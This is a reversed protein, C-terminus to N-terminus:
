VGGNIVVRSCRTTILLSIDTAIAAHQQKAFYYLNRVLRDFVFLGLFELIEIDIGTMHNLSFPRIHHQYFLFGLFTHKNVNPHWSMHSFHFSSTFIPSLYFSQPVDISLPAQLPQPLAAQLRCSLLVAQCWGRLPSLAFFSPSRNQSRSLCRLQLDQLICLMIVIFSYWDKILVDREFAYHTLFLELEKVIASITSFFM